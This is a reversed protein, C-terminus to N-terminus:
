VSFTRPQFRPFFNSHRSVINRIKENYIGKSFTTLWIFHQNILSKYLCVSISSKESSEM